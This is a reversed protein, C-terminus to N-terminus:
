EVKELKQIEFPDRMILGCLVFGIGVIIPMIKAFHIENIANYCDQQNSYDSLKSCDTIEPVQIIVVVGIVLFFIGFPM